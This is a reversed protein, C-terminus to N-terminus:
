PHIHIHPVVAFVFVLVAAILGAVRLARDLAAYLILLPIQLLGTIAYFVVGTGAIFKAAKGDLDPPVWGRSKIYARHDALSGPKGHYLSHGLRDPHLWLQGAGNAALAAWHRAALQAHEAPSLPVVAANSAAAGTVTEGTNGTVSLPTLPLTVPGTVPQTVPEQGAYRPVTDTVAPLAFLTRTVRNGNSHAM